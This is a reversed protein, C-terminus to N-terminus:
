EDKVFMRQVSLPDVQSHVAAVQQDYKNGLENNGKELRDLNKGSKLKLPIGNM